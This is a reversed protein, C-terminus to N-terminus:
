FFVPPVWCFEDPKRRKPEPVITVLIRSPNIYKCPKNNLFDLINKNSILSFLPRSELIEPLQDIM